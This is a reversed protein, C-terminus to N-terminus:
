FRKRFFSVIVAGLGLFSIYFSLGFWGVFPALCGLILVVAGAITQRNASGDPLLRTGVLQVVGTLGYALAALLIACLCLAPLFLFAMGTSDALSFLGLILAAFFLGNVLGLFFARAHMAEAAEQISRTRVPFLLRVALFFAALACAVAVVLVLGVFIDEM